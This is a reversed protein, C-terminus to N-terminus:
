IRLPSANRIPRPPGHRNHVTASSVVRELPPIAAIPLPAAVGMTGRLPKQAIAAAAGVHGCTYSNSQLTSCTADSSESPRHPQAVAPQTDAKHHHGHAAPEAVGSHDAQRACAAQCFDSAVPTGSVAICLTLGLLRNGM